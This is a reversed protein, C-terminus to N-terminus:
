EKDFLEYGITANIRKALKERLEEPTTWAIHNYQRTDFHANDIADQHCTFIVPLGLGHAFGAEYYVGGRAGCCGQTFDAVLFRSRRIEAIIEDDIKGNFKQEDIRIPTYGSDLIGPKIGNEWADYTSRHFWMAVFATSRLVVAEHRTELRGLGKLTLILDFSKTTDHSLNRLFGAAELEKLLWIHEKPNAGCETSAEFLMVLLNPSHDPSKDGSLFTPPRGIQYLARDIRQEITLLPRHVIEKITGATILPVEAEDESSLTYFADNKEWIWSSIQKRTEDDVIEARSPLADFPVIFLGGARPSFFIKHPIIGRDHM